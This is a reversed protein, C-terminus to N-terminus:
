GYGNIQKAVERLLKARDVPKEHRPVGLYAAPIASSDYGTTFTFPVGLEALADAVPYVREDRLNIDLLAGDLRDRERAVLELADEVSAAPGIVEAGANELVYALDAAIAYEDEVLLLRKGSLSEASCDTM